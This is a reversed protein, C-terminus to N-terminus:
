NANTLFDFSFVVMLCWPAPTNTHPWINCVLVDSAGRRLDPPLSKKSAFMQLAELVQPDVNVVVRSTAPPASNPKSEMLKSTAPERAATKAWFRTAVSLRVGQAIRAYKLNGNEFWGSQAGNLHQQILSCFFWCIEQCFSISRPDADSSGFSISCLIHTCAM